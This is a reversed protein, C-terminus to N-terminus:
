EVLMNQAGWYLVVVNFGDLRVVVLGQALDQLKRQLHQAQFESEGRISLGEASVLHACLAYM